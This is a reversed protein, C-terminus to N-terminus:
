ERIGYHSLWRWRWNQQHCRWRGAVAYKEGKTPVGELFGNDRNLQRGLWRRPLSLISAFCHSFSAKSQICDFSQCWGSNKLPLIVWIRVVLKKHYGHNHVATGLQIKTRPLANEVLSNLSPNLWCHISMKSIAPDIFNRRKQFTDAMRLIINALTQILSHWTWLTKHIKPIPLFYRLRKSAAEVLMMNGMFYYLVEGEYVMRRDANREDQLFQFEFRGTLKLILWKFPM